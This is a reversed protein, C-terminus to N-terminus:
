SSIPNPVDTLTDLVENLGKEAAGDVVNSIMSSNLFQNFTRIYQTLTVLREELNKCSATLLEIQDRCNGSTQDDNEMCDSSAVAIEETTEVTTKKPTTKKPTRKKPVTMDTTM